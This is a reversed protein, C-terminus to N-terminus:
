TLLFKYYDLAYFLLLNLLKEADSTRLEVLTSCLIDSSVFSIDEDFTVNSVNPGSAFTFNNLTVSLNCCKNKIHKPGFVM